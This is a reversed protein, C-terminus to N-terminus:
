KLEQEMLEQERGSLMLLTRIEHTNFNKEVWGLDGKAIRDLGIALRDVPMSNITKTIFYDLGKNETTLQNIRNEIFPKLEAFKGWDKNLPAVDPIDWDLAEKAGKGMARQGKTDISKRVTSDISSEGAYAKEYRSTKWDQAQKPTITPTDFKNNFDERMKILAKMDPADLKGADAILGDLYAGVADTPIVVGREQADSIVKGIQEGVQDKLRIVKEYGGISAPINERIGTQAVEKGKDTVRVSPPMGISSQYMREPIPREGAGLVKQGGRGGGTVVNLNKLKSLKPLSGFISLDALAHAPKNIVRNAINELSGYNDGIQDMVIDAALESQGERPQTEEGMYFDEFERGLKYLGSKGLELAGAAMDGWNAPNLGSLTEAGVDWADEPVNKLTATLAELPDDGIQELTRREDDIYKAYPNREKEEDKEPDASGGAKYKDYFGTYDTAM